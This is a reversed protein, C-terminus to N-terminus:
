SGKVTKDKRFSLNNHLTKGLNLNVLLITPGRAFTLLSWLMRHLLDNSAVCHVSIHESNMTYRFIDPPLRCSEFAVQRKQSFSDLPLTFGIVVAYPM